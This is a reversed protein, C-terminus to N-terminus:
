NELNPFKILLNEKSDYFGREKLIIEEDLPMIELIEVLESTFKKVNENPNTIGKEQMEKRVTYIYFYHEVDLKKM